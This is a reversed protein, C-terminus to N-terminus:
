SNDNLKLIKYSVRASSLNADEESKKSSQYLSLSSLKSTNLFLVTFNNCKGLPVNKECFVIDLDFKHVSQM